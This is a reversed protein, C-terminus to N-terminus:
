KRDKYYILRKAVKVPLKKMTLIETSNSVRSYEIVESSLNWNFISIRGTNLALLLQARSNFLQEKAKLLASTRAKVLEEFNNRIKLVDKSVRNIHDLYRKAVIFLPFSIVFQAIFIWFSTSFYAIFSNIARSNQVWECNIIWIFLLLGILYIVVSALIALKTNKLQEVRLYDM